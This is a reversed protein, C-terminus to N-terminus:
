AYQNGKGRTHPASASIEDRCVMGCSDRIFSYFFSSSFLTIFLFPPNGGRRRPFSLPIQTSNLSAPFLPQLLGSPLLLKPCGTISVRLSGLRFPSLASLGNAYLSKLHIVVCCSNQWAAPVQCVQMGRGLHKSASALACLPYERSLLLICACPGAM